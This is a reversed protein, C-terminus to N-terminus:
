KGDQAEEYERILIHIGDEYIRWELVEAMYWKKPLYCATKYDSGHVFAVETGKLKYKDEKEDYDEFEETHAIILECGYHANCFEEVTPYVNGYKDPTKTYPEIKISM